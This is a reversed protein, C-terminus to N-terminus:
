RWFLILLAWKRVCIWLMFVGALVQSIVLKVVVSKTTSRTALVVGEHDRVVIEIRENKQNM